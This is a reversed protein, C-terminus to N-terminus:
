IKEILEVQNGEPDKLYCSWGLGQSSHRQDYGYVSVNHKQFYAKLTEYDFVSIRLCFHDLNQSTPKEDVELIDILQEGARLQTLRLHPKEREISCGLVDCYFHLIATKNVTKLVIHDLSHIKFIAESNNNM